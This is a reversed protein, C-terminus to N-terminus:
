YPGPCFVNQGNADIGDENYPPDVEDPCSAFPLNHGEVVALDAKAKAIFERSYGKSELSAVLERAENVEEATACNIIDAAKM